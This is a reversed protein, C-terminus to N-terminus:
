KKTHAYSLTYANAHTFRYIYISMSIYGQRKTLCIHLLAFTMIMVQYSFVYSTLLSDTCKCTCTHIFVYKDKAATLSLRYMEM